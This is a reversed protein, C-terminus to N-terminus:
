ADPTSESEGARAGLLRDAKRALYWAHHELHWAVRALVTRLEIEGDEPHLGTRGFAHEPLSRLWDTMWMRLTHIVAVSGAIPRDAGGKEGAYLNSDIWADEDWVALVPHDEAVIRRMRWTLMLEADALHGLLIRCSWRGVGAEPRFCTDQEADSLQLVRADLAHVGRTYRELLDPTSLRLFESEVPPGARQATPEPATM